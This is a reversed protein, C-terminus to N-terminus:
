TPLTDIKQMCMKNMLEMFIIIIMLVIYLFDYELMNLYLKNTVISLTTAAIFYIVM